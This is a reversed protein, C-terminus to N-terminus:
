ILHTSSSLFDLQTPTSMNQFYLSCPSRLRNTNEYSKLPVHRVAHDQFGGHDGYADGAAVSSVVVAVTRRKRNKISAGRPLPVAGSFFEDSTGRRKIGAKQFDTGSDRTEAEESWRSHDEYDGKDEERISSLASGVMAGAAAMGAAVTKSANDFFQQPSPSRRLAGSMKGMLTSDEEVRTQGETSRAFSSEGAYGGSMQPGSPGGMPPPGMPGGMPPQGGVGPPPPGYGPPPIGGPYGEPPRPYDSDEDDDRRESWIWAALGVTVATVTVALPLWYGFATRRGSAGYGGGGGSAAAARRRRTTEVREYSYSM